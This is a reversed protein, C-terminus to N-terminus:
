RKRYTMREKTRTDTLELVGAALLGTSPVAQDPTAPDIFQLSIASGSVFGTADLSRGVPSRASGAIFQNSGLGTTPFYPSSYLTMTLPLTVSTRDATWTGEIPTDIDATLDLTKFMVTAVAGFVGVGGSLSNGPTDDAFPDFGAVNYRFYNSDVAIM